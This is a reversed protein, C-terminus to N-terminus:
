RVLSIGFRLSDGRENYERLSEGWGTFYQAHLYLDVNGQTIPRLPFSLDFQFAPHEWDDGVRSIFALQLGGAQGAVLKLDGYGRYDEIDPNDDDDPLYTWITPAATVFWGARDGFTVIPRIYATNISRSEPGGMGNSEHKVGAQFNLSIWEPLLRGNDGTLFRDVDDYSVLIEPRYSTDFFPKSEGQLDWFSTQTYGIYLGAVAPFREALTGEPDFLQYKFSIQFKGNPRDGGYLFYLPEHPRFRYGLIEVLDSESQPAPDRRMVNSLPDFLDWPRREPTPATAAATAPSDSMDSVSGSVGAPASVAVSAGGALEIRVEGRRGGRALAYTWRGFEGAGITRRGPEGIRRLVVDEGSVRARVTEPPEFGTLAERDALVILDVYINREDAPMASPALLFTGGGWAAPVILLMLAVSILWAKM